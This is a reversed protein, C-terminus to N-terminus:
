AEAVSVVKSGWIGEAIFRASSISVANVFRVGGGKLWIIYQKVM